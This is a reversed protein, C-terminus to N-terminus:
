RQMAYNAHKDDTSARNDVWQLKANNCELQM